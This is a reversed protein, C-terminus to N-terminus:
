KDFSQGVIACRDFGDPLNDLCQSMAAIDAAKQEAFGWSQGVPLVAAPEACDLQASAPYVPVAYSGHGEIGAAWVAMDQKASDCLGADVRLLRLDKDIMPSASQALVPAALAIASGLTIVALSMKNFM